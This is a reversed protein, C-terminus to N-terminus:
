RAFNALALLAGVRINDPLEKSSQEIWGGSDARFTMVADVGVSRADNNQLTLGSGPALSCGAVTWRITIMTGDPFTGTFTMATGSGSTVTFYNGTSPIAVIPGWVLNVGQTNVTAASSVSINDEIWIPSGPPDTDTSLALVVKYNNAIDLWLEVGPEGRANLVVPNANASLGSSSNYTNQKTTTGAKYFFLNGGVLPNGNADFFDPRLNTLRSVTPM